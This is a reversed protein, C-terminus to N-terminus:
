FGFRSAANRAPKEACGLQVFAEAPFGIKYYLAEQSRAFSTDRLRFIEGPMDCPALM